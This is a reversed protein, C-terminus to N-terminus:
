CLIIYIYKLVPEFSIECIHKIWAVTATEHFVNHFLKVICLAIFFQTYGTIVREYLITEYFLARGVFRIGWGTFIMGILVFNNHLICRYKARRKGIAYAIGYFCVQHLVMFWSRNPIIALILPFILGVSILINLQKDSMRSFFPVLLYSILLPTIFWTHEAGVVGVVAGQVGFFCSLWASLSMNVGKIISVVALICLFLEYPLLLRKLRKRYWKLPHEIEGQLAFCYASIFFFIEVGVSLLPASMRIYVLTSQQALHCALICAVSFAKLYDIFGQKQEM